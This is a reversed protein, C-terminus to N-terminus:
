QAGGKGSAPAPASGSLPKVETARFAIGHRGDNEWPTARLERVELPVGLTVGKPEGPVSVNIVEAQTGALLCVGVQYMTLGSDRDVRVQGTERNALRPAPAVACLAGTFKSM